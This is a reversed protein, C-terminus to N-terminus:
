QNAECPKSELVKRLADTPEAVDQAGTDFQVRWDGDEGRRWTSIFSGWRERRVGDADTSVVRFPGRSLALAGDETVEVTESRWRISPGSPEFFGAWSELVESPGRSVTAAVFRADAHLFTAFSERDRSEAADSFRSETCAVTAAAGTFSPQATAMALAVITMWM